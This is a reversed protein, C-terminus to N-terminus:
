KNIGDEAGNFVHCEIINIKKGKKDFIQIETLGVKDLNGWTSQILFSIVSYNSIHSLDTKEKINSFLEFNKKRKDSYLPTIIEKDEEIQKSKDLLISKINNILEKNISSSNIPKNMNANNLSININGFNVNETQIYNINYKNNSQPKEKILNGSKRNSKM